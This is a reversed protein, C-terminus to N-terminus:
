VWGSDRQRLGGGAAARSLTWPHLHRRETVNSGLPGRRPIGHGCVFTHGHHRWTGGRKLRLKLRTFDLSSCHAEVHCSGFGSLQKLCPPCCAARHFCRGLTISELVPRSCGCTGYNSHFPVQRPSCPFVNKEPVTTMPAKSRMPADDFFAAWSM